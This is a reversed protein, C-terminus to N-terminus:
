VYNLHLIKIYKITFADGEIALNCLEITQNKVFMISNPNHKISQSCIEYTQNQVFQIACQYKNLNEIFTKLNSHSGIHPFQFGNKNVAVFCIESTQNRVYQYLQM